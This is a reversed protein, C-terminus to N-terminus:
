HRPWATGTWTGPFEKLQELGAGPDHVLTKIATELREPRLEERGTSRLFEKFQRYKERIGGSAGGTGSSTLIPAVSAAVGAVPAAHEMIFRGWTSHLADALRDAQERSLDTRGAM